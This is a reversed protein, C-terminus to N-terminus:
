HEHTQTVPWHDYNLTPPLRVNNLTVSHYDNPQSNAHHPHKRWKRKMVYHNGGHAWILSVVCACFNLVSLWAVCSLDYHYFCLIEWADYFQYTMTEIGESM